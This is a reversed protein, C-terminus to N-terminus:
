KILNILFEFPIQFNLYKHVIEFNYFYYYENIKNQLGVADLIKEDFVFLKTYNKHFREIKGNSQPSRIPSTQHIVVKQNLVKTFDSKHYKYGPNYSYVYETGNDTIIRKIRIKNNLFIMM